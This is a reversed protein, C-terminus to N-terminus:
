KKEGEVIKEYEDVWYRSIVDDLKVLPIKYMVGEKSRKRRFGYSQLRKGVYGSLSRRENMWEFGRNKVYDVIEAVKFFSDRKQYSELNEKALLIQERLLLMFIGDLDDTEQQVPLYRTEYFLDLINLLNDDVLYCLTALAVFNDADRNNAFAVDINESIYEALEWWEMAFFFLKHRIQNARSLMDRSDERRSGKVGRTRLMRIPLTRSLTVPHISEIALIIKPCFVNFPKPLWNGDEKVNVDVTKGRKVGANIVKNVLTKVEPIDSSEYEDLILLGGYLEINRVLAAPTISGIDSASKGRFSIMQMISALKSKGSGKPAQVNISPFHHFVEYIYTGMVYLSLLIIDKEDLDILESIFSRIEEYLEQVSQQSPFHDKNSNFFERITEKDFDHDTSYFVADRKFPIENKGAWTDKGIKKKNDVLINKDSTVIADHGAIKAGYYFFRNKDDTHVGMSMRKKKQEPLKLLKNIENKKM